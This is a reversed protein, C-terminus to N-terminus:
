DFRRLRAFIEANKDTYPRRTVIIRVLYIRCLLLRKLNKGILLRTAWVEDVLPQSKKVKVNTDDQRFLSSPHSLSKIKPIRSVSERQPTGRGNSTAPDPCFLPLGCLM